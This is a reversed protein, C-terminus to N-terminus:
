KVPFVRALRVQRDVAAWSRVMVVVEAVVTEVMAVVKVGDVMLLSQREVKEM